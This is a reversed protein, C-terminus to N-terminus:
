RLYPLPDVPRGRDRLEFHLHTGTCSGTCGALGLHQGAVVWEGPHVDIRSLHAYLNEHGGGLDVLVVQGYGAYGDLWGAETVSGAAAARVDLSKLIGIDIGWHTRGWRPGYRDTLTGVAPWEFALISARYDLYEDLSGDPRASASAVFILAGLFACLLPRM